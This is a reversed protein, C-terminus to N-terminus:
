ECCRSASSSHSSPSLRVTAGSQYASFAILPSGLIGALAQARCLAPLHRVGRANSFAWIMHTLLLSWFFVHSALGALILVVYVPLLVTRTWGGRAAILMLVTAALGLFCELAFMRAVKSWFVHYGNLALLAAAVAGAFRVGALCGLERPPGGAGDPNSYHAM